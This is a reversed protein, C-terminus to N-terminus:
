MFVFWASVRWSSSGPWCFPGQYTHQGQERGGAKSAGESKFRKQWSSAGEGHEGLEAGLEVGVEFRTEELLDLEEVVLGSGKGADILLVEVEDLRALVNNSEVDRKASIVAGELGDSAVSGLVGSVLEGDFTACAVGLVDIKLFDLSESGEHGELEGDSVNRETTGLTTDFNVGALVRLRLNLSDGALVSHLEDLLAKDTSLNIAKAGVHTGVLLGHCPDLVGVDVDLTLLVDVGLAAASALEDGLTTDGSTGLGSTETDVVGDTLHEVSLGKDVAAAEVKADLALGEDNLAETSDAVPGGLEDLLIATLDGSDDLVVGCAM